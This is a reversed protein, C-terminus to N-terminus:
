TRKMTWGLTAYKKKVYGKIFFGVFLWNLGYFIATVWFWEEEQRSNMLLPKSDLFIVSHMIVFLLAEIVLGKYALYFYGFMFCWFGMPGKTYVTYGNEPNVFTNADEFHVSEQTSDGQSFQLPVGQGAKWTQDQSTKRQKDGEAKITVDIADDFTKSCSFCTM